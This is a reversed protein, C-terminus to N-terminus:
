LIRSVESDKGYLFCVNMFKFPGISERDLEIRNDFDLTLVRDLCQFEILSKSTSCFLYDYM